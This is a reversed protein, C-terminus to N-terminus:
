KLLPAQRLTYSELTSIEDVYWEFLPSFICSNEMSKNTANSESVNSRNHTLLLLSGQINYLVLEQDAEIENSGRSIKLKGKTNNM